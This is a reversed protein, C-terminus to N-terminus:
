GAGAAITEISSAIAARNYQLLQDFRAAARNVFVMRQMPDYLKARLLRPFQVTLVNPNPHCASSLTLEIDAAVGSPIGTVWAFQNADLARQMRIGDYIAPQLINIQEHQALYKVSQAIQNQEIAEFAPIIEKFPKGFELTKEDLPWMVQKAIVHRDPLCDRLYKIGRLMYFRHLPYIDLFLTMNCLALQEYMFASGIVAGAPVASDAAAASSGGVVGWRNNNGIEEESRRVNDAAHLLGCGVQKSAFAALGAWQFRPDAQWLQAYAQNIRGNRKVPDAILKGDPAIWAEAEKQCRMWVSKCTLIPVETVRRITNGVLTDQTKCEAIPIANCHMSIADHQHTTIVSDSM